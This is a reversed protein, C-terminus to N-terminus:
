LARARAQEAREAPTSNGHAAGHPGEVRRVVLGRWLQLKRTSSSEGSTSQLWLGSRRGREEADDSMAV